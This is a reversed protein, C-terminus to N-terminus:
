GSIVIEADWLREGGPVWQGTEIRAVDYGPLQHTAMCKGNFVVGAPPAFTFNLSEHGIECRDEPLDRVDAPHVSLFFRGRADYEDCPEKLYSLTDRDGDLYLDFGARAASDWSYSRCCCRTFMGDRLLAACTKILLQRFHGEQVFVAMGHFAMAAGFLDMVSEGSVADAYYLAYFGSFALSTAAFAGWRSGTVRSMALFALAAAGCFMMLMPVSAAMLKAALDNGFPLIALKILIYGGIPFRSYLVYRQGGDEDRWIKLAMLFNHEPSM